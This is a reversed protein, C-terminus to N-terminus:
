NQFYTNRHCWKVSNEGHSAVRGDWNQGQNM